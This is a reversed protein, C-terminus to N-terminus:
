GEFASSPATFNSTYRALGKTYRFDEIYGGFYDVGDYGIRLSTNTINTSYTQTTGYQTGDIFVRMNTGERAMAIHYWTNASPTFGSQYFASGHYIAIESSTSRYYLAPAYTGFSCITQNGASLSDFRVWAECTFDGTSPAEVTATIYDGSDDFYISESWKYQTTSPTTNGTLTLTEGSAADWIDNKNTLFLTETGSIASLSQTPPTFEGTYVATGIVLRVDQFYGAARFSGGGLYRSNVTMGTSNLDGSYTIASGFYRGNIYAQVSTGNRVVACHYWTGVKFGTAGGSISNYDTSANGIWWDAIALTMGKVGSEELSSFFSAYSSTTNTPKFWFELTFSSTGIATMGTSQTSQSTSHLVSGGHTSVSYPTAHEYPAFISAEPAGNITVTRDVSSDDAIYPQHLTLLKTNTVATLRETPPTFGSTYVATGKVIRVDTLYAPGLYESGNWGSRGIVIGNSTYNYDFNATINSTAVLTGNQFLRVDDSSDRTLAVHVWEKLPFMVATGTASTGTTNAYMQPNGSSVASTACLVGATQGTIGQDNGISIYPAAVHTSNSTIVRQITRAYTDQNLYVWFEITFEGDLTFDASSTCSYYDTSGNIYHSYGKPHYPTLATSTSGSFNTITNSNGSADVQTDTASSDTQILLTTYNSNEIIFRLAFSNASTSTNVGDSVTFTIEFTGGYAETTSPTITFVNTNAGTGQSVTATTGGGNTLSGSTVSYSYTVPIGEPDSATITIVTATGDTSLTFPTSNSDADQVSTISPDTNVLSISYWGSGTNVYMRNTEVVYALDGASNGSLPLDSTNTYSTVSGGSAGDTIGYGALTTPKNALDAFDIQGSSDVTNAFKSINNNISM